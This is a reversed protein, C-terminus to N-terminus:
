YPQGQTTEADLWIRTDRCLRPQYSFGMVLYTRERCVELNPYYEGCRVSPRRIPCHSALSTQSIGLSRLRCPAVYAQELVFQTRSTTSRIPQLFNGPAQDRFPSPKDRHWEALSRGVSTQVQILRPLRRSLNSVGGVAFQQHCMPEITREGSPGTPTPLPM